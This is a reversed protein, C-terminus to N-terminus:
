FRFYLFPDNMGMYLCYFSGLFIAAIVVDGIISNKIWEYIKLPIKTCFIVGIILFVAYEKGYVIYDQEFLAEGASGFFPFLKSFFVGMQQFDTISFLTWSIPILLLMYLHGIPKIRETIKLLGAKEIAIVAFLFLGWLVFNLSAGHWFGTLLWVVMLNRYTKWKGERSGGLPIYVYERFWSGLTMHWRRWFETMSRSLYPHDFNQPIKFGIIEGLGIAMLSYGYFDFYIQLTFALIGMWAMPTSISEYGITSCQTWLAGIRNALMVKLGLGIVFTKIGNVIGELTSPHDSIQAKIDSYTVIPGAILRDRICM